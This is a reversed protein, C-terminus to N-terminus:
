RSPLGAWLAQLYPGAPGAPVVQLYSLLPRVVAPGTPFSVPRAARRVAFRNGPVIVPAALRTGCSFAAILRPKGTPVTVAVLKLQLRRCGFDQSVPQPSSSIFIKSGCCLENEAFLRLTRTEGSIDSSTLTPRRNKRSTHSTHRYLFVRVVTFVTTGVVFM